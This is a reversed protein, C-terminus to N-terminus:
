KLIKIIDQMVNFAEYDYREVATVVIIDANKLDDKCSNLYDRHAITCNSFDKVLIPIMNIRYSDSIMCLRKENDCNSNTRIVMADLDVGSVAIDPKYDFIYDYDDEVSARDIYGMDCLDKEDTVKWEGSWTEIDNTEMGMREYLAQVGEYAGALNWHTDYKYYVQRKESAFYLETLPYILQTSTNNTIYDYLNQERKYRTAIEFSPMYRDYVQSKNPTIMVFLQKGQAQCLQYLTEMTNAYDAMEEESLINTGCYYDIENESCLFLWGERGEVTQGKIIPVMYTVGSAPPEVPVDETEQEAIDTVPQVYEEEKVPVVRAAISNAASQYVQSVAGDINQYVKIFHDRFPFRDDVFGSISEGTNWLESVEITTMDRNERTSDTLSKYLDPFIVACIGGIIWPFILIALFIIILIQRRNLNMKNIKM